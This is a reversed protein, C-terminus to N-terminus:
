YDGNQVQWCELGKDRWMKVVHTRDELVLHVDFHPHIQNEYIEAKVVDDKRFDDDDRMFLYTPAIHPFHEHLWEETDERYKQFRGTVFIIEFDLNMFQTLVIGVNVRPSDKSMLSHFTDWDKPRKLIYEMRHSCDAITNDIDCIVAKKRFSLRKM